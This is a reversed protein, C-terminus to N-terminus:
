NLTSTLQRCRNDEIDRQSTNVSSKNFYNVKSNNTNYATTSEQSKEILSSARGVDATSYKTQDIEFKAKLDHNDENEYSPFQNSETM